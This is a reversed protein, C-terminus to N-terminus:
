GRKEPKFRNLGMLKLLYKPLPKAEKKKALNIKVGLKKHVTIGHTEVFEILTGDPDEIYSFRGGAEGMEFTANSDVTFPHGAAACAEKLAETGWVDFCLHIFGLDGWLRDQFIPTPEYEQAMVLEIRNPAFLDSFWGKAPVSRELLVRRFPGDGGPLPQFDEFVGVQDYAVRDFGLVRRYFELSRDMESVGILVGEVGGTNAKQGSFFEGGDGYVVDFVNGYPDRLFFHERGNPAAAIGGLVEARSEKLETYATAVQASKMRAAFIGTDGLKIERNPGEPTRSTYQWIEFGGGGALNIALAADRSQVSGGTYRTMFPAPAAERFVSVDMGFARAYFDWAEEIRPIGVGVQQIGGFSYSESM